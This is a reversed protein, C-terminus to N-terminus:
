SFLDGAEYQSHFCSFTSSRPANKKALTFLQQVDDQSPHDPLPFGLTRALSYFDELTENSPTEHIRFVSPLNHKVFYEAVIENAKLMFEEVLQHTIDYEVVEFGYPKGKKDVQIVVEPLALDVSGREFRKKKLLLALEEMLKLTSLHPSKKEGDLIAKAEEYTFRKQSYIYAKEIKSGKVKGDLDFDILVTLTLRLEKEKLSCLHNSLEEPLMPICKGPFYTSNSRCKAEKDLSTGEQVYHSVDAIHVALHYGQKDKSLSLADDYDKATTPDITFTELSTLDLRNKM